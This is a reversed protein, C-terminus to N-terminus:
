HVRHLAPMRHRLRLALYAFRRHLRVALYLAALPIILSAMLTFFASVFEVLTM